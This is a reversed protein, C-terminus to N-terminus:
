YGRITIMYSMVSLGCGYRFMIIGNIYLVFLLFLEFGEKACSKEIDVEVDRIASSNEPRSM